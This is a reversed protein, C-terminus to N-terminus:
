FLYKAIIYSLVLLLTSGIFCALFVKQGKEIVVKFNVNIGLAAMAMGLLIYAISVLSSLIEEPMKFYTGIASSILFGIMFYPFAIKMKENKNNKSFILSFIISLPALMLVRSLKVITAIELSVSGGSSGAAVAHAIEHLSAGALVGYQTETLGLHDKLFVLILTFLTGLIAVVAVSIVEKDEDTKLTPSLGLVAAAGCVGCGSAALLCFKKDIKLLSGIYTIVTITFAIVVIAVLITKIGHSALLELNLKFGMMIIGLRLFKNSIFSSSTKLTNKISFLQLLMGLILAIVLHGIINLGDFTSLYKALISVILFISASIYFKPNTLQKM